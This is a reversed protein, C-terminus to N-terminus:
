SLGEQYALGAAMRQVTSPHSAFLAYEVPNPDVDTLNLQALRAQMRDFTVPDNTLRLAHTDARAEIHRSVLNEV